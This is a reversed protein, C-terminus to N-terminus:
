VVLAPVAAAVGVAPAAVVDRGGRPDERDGVREVRHGAVPRVPARHAPGGGAALELLLGPVLEVRGDDVGEPCPLARQPADAALQVLRCQDGLDLVDAAAAGHEGRGPALA